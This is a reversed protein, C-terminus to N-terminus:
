KVLYEEILITDIQDAGLFKNVVSLLDKKLAEMNKTEALFDYNKNKLYYYLADRLVLRKLDIERGAAPDATVLAFRCHLFRVKRDRRGEGGLPSSACPATPM